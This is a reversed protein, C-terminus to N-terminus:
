GLVDAVLESVADLEDENVGHGMGEYIREDVDGNLREFAETTEHVRELPIHPDVDSCGVLVPTREIDGEYETPDVSEGILGGSLAALGGYRRPNRAVFESALCAGQSFGLLVVKERPVDGETATEVADGVAQLGSSRGPENDEVPALFSNPYWTNGAAQPALLALGDRHVEQGMQVISRATAGRGHVLVMAADAAELPTGAAVLQQGQHPGNM